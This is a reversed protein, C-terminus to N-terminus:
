FLKLCEYRKVESTIQIPYWAKDAIHHSSIHIQHGFQAADDITAGYILHGIGAWVLASMCMPCPEVTTYLKLLRPDKFELTKIKQIANLEAHAQPGDTSTTNHAVVYNTESEVLVAGFPTKGLRAQAIAKKMWLQNSNNM